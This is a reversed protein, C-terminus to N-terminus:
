KYFVYTESGNGHKMDWEAYTTSSSDKGIPNSLPYSSNVSNYSYNSSDYSSPTVSSIEKTIIETAM